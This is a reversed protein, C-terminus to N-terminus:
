NLASNQKLISRFHSRIPDPWQIQRCCLVYLKNREFRVFYLPIAPQECIAACCYRQLRNEMDFVFPIVLLIQARNVLFLDFRFIDNHEQINRVYYKANLYLIPNIQDIKLIIDIEGISNPRYLCQKGSLLYEYLLDHKSYDLKKNCWDTRFAEAEYFKRDSDVNLAKFTETSLWGM